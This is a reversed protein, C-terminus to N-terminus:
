SPKKGMYKYAEKIEKRFIAKLTKQRKSKPQEDNKNIEKFEKYILSILRRDYINCVDGRRKDTM